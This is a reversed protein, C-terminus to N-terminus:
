KVVIGSMRRVKIVEALISIAIEEPTEAEIELGIPAHVSNLKAQSVGKALLHEKIEKVKKKSGIMGIYKADKGCALQLCEEDRTHQPTYIIIYDDTTINLEAFAKGYDKVVLSDADPFRERNNFEPRPDIVVIRFGLMKGIASTAFSIHGAGCLFLTEKSKILELFVDAQGGCIMGDPEKGSLDFHIIESRGTKLIEPAKRLVDHELKGGGVTGIFSGDEKILMKAGANRPASGTSNIVTALVARGGKQMINALEQYVELM